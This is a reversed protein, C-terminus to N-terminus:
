PVEYIEVVGVGTTRGVGSVQATYIGPDLTLVLAADKSDSALEGMGVTKFLAATTATHDWDDNEGALTWKGTATDLKWVQLQPDHLYGSVTESIGPGVGRVIVQKPADGAIVFGAILIADDVGVQNRVSLATLRKTKDSLNADYAAALAVGTTGNVGTVHATYVSGTLTELLAADKSGAVLPGAGTQALATSLADTGNWNDNSAVESGGATYLTLQPDRMYGNVTESMNPGVGCVLTPKGGGAFVFGLILTEDGTGAPARASLASFQSWQVSLRAGASAVAPNIGDSIQCRYQYDAMSASAGSVTLSSTTTGTYQADDSVDSWTAGGDTSIQWRYTLVVTSTASVSFTVATGGNVTKAAPQVTIRPAMPLTDYNVARKVIRLEDIWGDFQVDSSVYHTGGIFVGQGTDLLALDGASATTQQKAVLQRQADHVYATLTGATANGVLALHYWQGLAYTGVSAWGMTKGAATKYRLEFSSSTPNLGFALGWDAWGYTPVRIIWPYQTYANISNVKVWVEITWNGSVALAANASSILANGCSASNDLHLAQGLRNAGDAFTLTGYRGPQGVVGAADVFDNEFHYLVVTDADAAHYAGVAEGTTVAFDGTTALITPAEADSLRLRAQTTAQAPVTWAYAVSATSVDTALTTWVGGGNASYEIKLWRVGESAWRLPFTAGSQFVAGTLEAGWRLTKQAYIDFVGATQRYINGDTTDSIRLKAQKTVVAPVTWVYSGSAAAVETAILNWNYGADTSYEIKLKDIGTSAWRITTSEGGRWADGVFPATLELTKGQDDPVLGILVSHYSNYNGMDDVDCYEPYPIGYGYAYHFKDQSNYGDIVFWHGDFNGPQWPAPSVATRAMVLLPHGADLESKLLAIWEERSYQWRCAEYAQPAYRFYNVFMRRLWQTDMGSGGWDEMAAAAHFSLTATPGYVAETATAPLDYPMQDYRYDAASFDAQWHAGNGATFNIGGAGHRPYEWYRLIRTISSPGCANGIRYGLGEAGGAPDLPYYANLPWQYNNWTTKILPGASTAPTSSAILSLRVGSSTASGLANTVVCRFRDGAMAPAPANVTLTPTQTGTYATGDDLNVWTGTSWVEDQSSAVAVADWYAKDNALRQWRYAPATGTAVLTFQIAQGPKAVRSLPQTAIAPAVLQDVVTLAAGTTTQTLGKADSVICRYQYGTLATSTVVSLTDSLAGAYTADNALDSWSTGGNTSVQWRYTLPATGGTAAVTFSATKGTVVASAVPQTAIGLAVNLARCPIGRRITHNASDAVYLSGDATELLGHPRNFRAVSGEGDASGASWVAGALTTVQGAASLRRLTHVDESVLLAGSALRGVGSPYTFRASTLDGNVTGSSGGVGAYTSVTWTSGSGKTLKRISHSQEDAVYLNNAADCTIGAPYNFRAASGVGDATGSTQALGALTTVVGAPTIQRILFNDTDTVYLNGAADLALSRPYRFRAAAGAGDTAGEQDASGALTSVVGGPTIKRITCNFMDAVYVNDAADIALGYPRDFRAESAAGDAVGPVGAQGAWVSVTGDPSIRRIVSNNQDAVYLNGVSDVALSQPQALRAQQRDGDVCGSVGASGAFTEFVYTGEAALTLTAPITSLSNGLGDSVVCRYRCGQVAATANVQLTAARAGTYTAGEDVNAWNAEADSSVQWQYTISAPGTASVEFVARSGAVAAFSQPQARIALSSAPVTITFTGSTAQVSADAADSLRLRGQTTAAAPVTWDYGGAGATVAASVTTWTSGGNASYEIKVQSVSQSTWTLHCTAGAQLASGALDASWLIAKGTTAISFLGSRRYHNDDAADSLRLCVQPAIVAPVTWAYSGAAAPTGAVIPSWNYGNDTSYEIKLQDIGTSTWAITASSGGQLTTGAAPGALSLTKGQWDPELGIVARTQSIPYLEEDVGRYESVLTPGGYVYHFKSESNYGDIVMAYGTWGASQAGTLLVPRGQDLESKLLAVWEAQAYGARDVSYAQPAYRFRTVAIQRLDSAYAGGWSSYGVDHLAVAAHYCLRATPGYVAETATTPIDDPMQDYLYDAGEFDAQWSSALIGMSGGFTYSLSGVGHRPFGWYRLVRTLASAGSGNGLRYGLAATGGEPNTPYYANLPAQNDGWTTRLLPAVSAAVTGTPLVSLTREPTTKGFAASYVICSFQDGNMALTPQKITLTATQTGAYDANDALDQWLTSADTGAALANWYAANNALRQWQYHVVASSGSTTVTMTTPQGVATARNVPYTVISFPSAVALTASETTLSTGQADGLVCRYQRYGDMALTTTVTLTDTASGAYTTDDTLNSWSGGSDTSVQWRYTLPATGGTATATFTAQSGAGVEISVPQKTIALDEAPAAAWM